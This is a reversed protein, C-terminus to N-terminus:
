EDEEREEQRDRRPPNPRPPRRRAGRRRSLRRAWRDVGWAIVFTWGYAAMVWVFLPVPRGTWRYWQWLGLAAAAVASSLAAVAWQRRHM